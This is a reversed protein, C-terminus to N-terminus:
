RGNLVPSQWCVNEDHSSYRSCFSAIPRDRTRQSALAAHRGGPDFFVAKHTTTLTVGSRRLSWFRVLYFDRVPGSAVPFQQYIRISREIHAEVLDTGSAADATSQLPRSRGLARDVRPGSRHVM